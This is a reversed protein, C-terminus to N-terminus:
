KKDFDFLFHQVDKMNYFIHKVGLKRIQAECNCDQYMESGLFAIVDIGAKKAATMGAISDEIIICDEKKVNMKKAALLFLDPEPKGHAVMDATFTNNEDFYKHWFGIYQMKVVTKEFTGGTAVCYKVPTKKLIDEVGDIAQIGNQAMSQMDVALLDNWFEDNTKIGLDELVHKKTKDSMGGIFKNTTQFDWNLNFKQNLCIQRNLLWIKETDAIVGDFDWIILKKNMKVVKLLYFNSDAPFGCFRIKIM